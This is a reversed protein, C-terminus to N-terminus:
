NSDELSGSTKKANPDVCIGFNSNTISGGISFNVDCKLGSECTCRYYTGYLSKPSCEENEAARPACRALSLGDRRHCCSSKCQMSIFCLESNDLNTILGKGQPPAALAVSLVCVGILLLTRM